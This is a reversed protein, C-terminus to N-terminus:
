SKIEQILQKIEEVPALAYWFNGPKSWKWPPPFNAGVGDPHVAYAEALGYPTRSTDTWTRLESRLQESREQKAKERRQIAALYDGPKVYRPM